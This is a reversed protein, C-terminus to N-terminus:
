EERVAATTGERRGRGGERRRKGEFAGGLDGVPVQVVDALPGGLGGGGWREAEM